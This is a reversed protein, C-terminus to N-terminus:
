GWNEIELNWEKVTERIKKLAKRSYKKYDFDPQWLISLFDQILEFDEQTIRGSCERCLNDNGYLSVTTYIKKMVTKVKKPKSIVKTAKYSIKM